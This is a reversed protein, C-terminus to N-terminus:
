QAAMNRLEDILRRYADDQVVFYKASGASEYAFCPEGLVLHFPKGDAIYDIFFQVHDVSFPHVRTGRWEIKLDRLKM